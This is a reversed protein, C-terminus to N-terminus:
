PRVWLAGAGVPGPDESMIYIDVQGNEGDAGQPGTPGAPGQAGRPGVDGRPGTAGARGAPGQCGAPGQLGDQGLLGDTGNVGSIGQVGPEGKGINGGTMFGQVVLQEGNVLTFVLNGTTDDFFVSLIGRNNIDEDRRTFVEEGSFRVDTNPEGRAYLMSLPTKTLAGRSGSM